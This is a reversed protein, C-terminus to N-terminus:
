YRDTNREQNMNNTYLVFIPLFVALVNDPNNKKTNKQSILNRKVHEVTIQKLMLILSKKLDFSKNLTPKHTHTHTANTHIHIHIHIHAHTYTHTHICTGACM